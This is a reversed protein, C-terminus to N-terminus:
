LMLKSLWFNELIRMRSKEEDTEDSNGLLHLIGHIIVRHLENTFTTSFKKSNHKVTQISIFIDSSVEKQTIYPFTIIDTYFNHKLFKKNISLIKKESCFIINLDGVLFDNEIIASSIWYKIKRKNKLNFKIDESFFHIAV